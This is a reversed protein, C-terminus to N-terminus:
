STLKQITEVADRVMVVKDIEEDPVSIDFEDEVVMAFEMFDLSDFGLDAAFQSDLSIQEKSIGVQRGALEIVKQSLTEITQTSM